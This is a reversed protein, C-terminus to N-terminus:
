RGYPNTAPNRERRKLLEQMMQALAEEQNTAPKAPQSVQEQRLYYDVGLIVAHAMDPSKTPLSKTREKGSLRKDYVKIQEQMNSEYVPAGLQKLLESGRPVRWSDMEDNTPLALQPKPREDGIRIAERTQWWLEDKKTDFRDPRRPSSGFNIPVISVEKRIAGETQLERLKDTVGGGLGTDDICVARANPHIKLAAGVRRAVAMLDIGNFWGWRGDEFRVLSFKAQDIVGIASLDDGFRAVDCTIVAPRRDAKNAGLAQAAQLWAKQILQGVGGQPIVGLVYAKYENSNEGFTDAIERIYARSVRKSELGSAHVTHWLDSACAAAFWGVDATPPTSLVVAKQEGDAEDGSLSAILAGYVEDSMAKAEDIVLLLNPSHFGEVNAAKDSSTSVIKWTEPFALSYVGLAQWEFPNRLRWHRAWANIEPWLKDEIHSWTGASTIVAAPRRTALWWLAIMAASATKGVGRGSIVAVRDHHAVARLIKKQVADVVVPRGYPDSDMSDVVFDDPHLKWYETLGNLLEAKETV